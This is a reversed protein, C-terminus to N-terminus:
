ATVVGDRRLLGSLGQLDLDVAIPPGEIGLHHAIFSAESVSVTPRKAKAIDFIDTVTVAVHGDTLVRANSTAADLAAADKSAADKAAADVAKAVAAMSPRPSLLVAVLGKLEGNVAGIASTDGSAVKMALVSMPLACRLESELSLAPATSFPLQLKRRLAALVGDPGPLQYVLKVDAAAAALDAIPVDRRYAASSEELADLWSAALDKDRKVLAKGEKLDKRLRPAADMTAQTFKPFLTREIESCVAACQAYTRCWDSAAVATPQNVPGVLKADRAAKSVTREKEGVERGFQRLPTVVELEWWMRDDM